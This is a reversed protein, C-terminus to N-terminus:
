TFTWKFTLSEPVIIDSKSGQITCSSWVFSGFTQKSHLLFFVQHPKVARALQASLFIDKESEPHNLNVLVRGQTDPQNLADNAHAGSPESEEEENTSESSLHVADDEGSSLDIM